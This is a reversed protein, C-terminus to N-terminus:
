EKDSEEDTVKVDAVIVNVQTVVTGAMTQVKDKINEQVKEAVEKVKAKKDVCIYASIKVAGNVAEIKVGKFANKNKVAGKLDISKKSLGVVGDVEKAAIEAMKELVETNISLETKINDM